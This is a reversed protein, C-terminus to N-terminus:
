SLLALIQTPITNAIRLTAQTSQVLVQARTLAAVEEAMDADRIVSESATVNELAVGQSHINPEIINKQINGLRGRYTSIQDIAEAIIEQATQYNRSELHNGAGSRLSYLRGVVANGLQTTTISNLGVAVQGNPSIEPTIQFISGGGTISFTAASLTQAFSRTLYLRADLGGSRVDARVGKVSTRQGDILVGADVGIDRLVSNNNNLTVFNGSIPSVSVFADSGLETSHLVLASAVGAIGPSSVIASVGTVTTSANIATRIEALSTGSAFSLMDVGLRGRLEITTASTTAPSGSQIGTFSIRATQASQTVKVTVTRSGNHPIRAAFLQVSDLATTPIGSTLYARSGDLLKQGAFRTTHAIRDLSDLISDIQLQSAATEAETLGAENAAALVLSQLDLLLASAENLAGEATSIVNFARSSNEIAQQIVRIDSRLRESAILGAPDDAGRNIRLGTALRELRVELDAQNRALRHIARVAPINTHIRSM